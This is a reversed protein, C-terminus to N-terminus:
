EKLHLIDPYLEFGMGLTLLMVKSEEQGSYKGEKPSYDNIRQTRELPYVVNCYQQGQHQRLCMM